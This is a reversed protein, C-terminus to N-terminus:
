FLGRNKANSMFDNETLLRDKLRNLIETVRKCELQRHFLERDQKLFRSKELEKIIKYDIEQKETDTLNEYEKRCENELYKDYEIRAKEKLKRDEHDEQSEKVNKHKTKFKDHNKDTWNETIAMYLYCATNKIKAPYYTIMFDHLSIKDQIYEQSHLMLISNIQSKALKRKKLEHFLTKNPKDSVEKQSLNTPVSKNCSKDNSCNSKKTRKEPKTEPLDPTEATQVKQLDTQILALIEKLNDENQFAYWCTRDYPNHNFNDKVLIDKKILTDIAKRIKALSMWKFKENLKKLPTFTWTKGKKQNVKKRSNVQIWFAFNQLIAAQELGYQEILTDNIYM